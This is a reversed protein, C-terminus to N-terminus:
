RGAKRGHANLLWILFPGGIAATFVGLPLEAGRIATRAFIDVLVLFGAGLLSGTILVRSNEAGM